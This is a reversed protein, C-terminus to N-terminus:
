RSMLGSLMMTRGGDGGAPLLTVRSRRRDHPDRNREPDLALGLFGLRGVALERVRASRAGVGGTFILADIAGLSAVM